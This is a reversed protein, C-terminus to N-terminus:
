QNFLPEVKFLSVDERAELGEMIKYKHGAGFLILIRKEQGKVKDLASNIRALHAANIARWGGAGLDDGFLREYTEQRAKVAADYASSHIFDPDDARGALKKSYRQIAAQYESWDNARDPDKALRKEVSRRDDAIQQTWAAVPIMEFGLQKRLPFVVDTLEPFDDARSERVEGYKEYNASAIAFRDSPLEVMVIDPDFKVVADRLVDLSYAESGRHQGHIAGIVTVINAGEPLADVSPSSCGTLGLFLVSLWAAFARM